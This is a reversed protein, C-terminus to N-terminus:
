RTRAEVESLAQRAVNESGAGRGWEAEAKRDAAILIRLAQAGHWWGFKAGTVIWAHQYSWHSLNANTPAPHRVIWRLLLRARNTLPMEDLPERPAGAVQFAPPRTAAAPKPKAPKKALKAAPKAVPKAAPKALPKAAPKAAARKAKDGFLRLATGGYISRDEPAGAQAYRSNRALTLTVTPAGTDVVRTGWAPNQSVVTNAAFGHVGGAVRFSFGEDELTGKAFVFAQHLVNPVILPQPKAPKAAPPTVPAVLPTSSAFTAAATALLCVFALVVFRPLYTGLRSGMMRGNPLFM